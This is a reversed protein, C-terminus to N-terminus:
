TRRLLGGARREQAVEEDVLSKNEQYYDWAEEVAPVPLDYAEATEELTLKNSLMTGVVDRATLCGRDKIYLQRKREDFHPILYEYKVRLNASM